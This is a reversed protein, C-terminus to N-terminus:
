TLHKATLAIATNLPYPAQYGLLNQARETNLTMDYYLVGASYATLPPEQRSLASLAEATKAFAAILPYPLNKIHLPKGLHQCILQQLLERLTIPEQNSINFIPLPHKALASNGALTMAYVVNDAFTIDMLVNGGNPLPLKGKKAHYLALIKPLLVRDHTGFIARPRLMAIRMECRQNLQQLFQEALFKTHIYHNVFRSNASLALEDERVNHRHSFNFYLSPTSIHVFTQVGSQAALTALNQTARVNAAYFDAYNGWASSLAACHWIIDINHLLSTLAEQSATALDLAQAKIGLASLERIVAPNRGTAVCPIGMHHLYDIACRGLGSTAGTVLIKHTKLAELAQTFPTPVPYDIM